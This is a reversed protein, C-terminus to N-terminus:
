SWWGNVDIIVQASDTSYICIAGNATLPLQAANAIAATAEYNVNSTTPLEGCPFATVYGASTADVVTLNASIAKANAPVGRVGAIQVVLIQGAALRSGNQGANVETRLGDRTDTFRFPASPTFKNTANSSAYGVVDVVLDIDTSAFFCVTGAPSVQALVLNPTVKGAAPNLSSTAPLTGCPFVTIYSDASPVVGTVNLAVASADTPINAIGLVPLEVVQGAALRAPTGLGQRSDMLRAPAVPMYRGGAATAYYGGVDILLDASVNSFACLRGSADLPITAANAVTENTSFNLTSVEPQTSCNWMTLFGPGAPGTVTVNALLAKASAPVGGQGTIQIRTIVGAALRAAGISSRTDVIRAPSLPAFGTSASTPSAVPAPTIVGTAAAPDVNFTWNVNRASTNAAVTYAGPALVTRPVIVVANDGGLIQSAVGSTTAASLVCVEIPGNPGILSGSANNAAEPMLAIIPLGAPGSWNCYTLPSPTEVVFRDLNTTTGDGPFLIPTAPRPASGLGRIVDLTAGSHWTPTSASDCKGFGTSQLNPRIIGIAHFPGSMWLEIHSRASTNIASSVAVNGSNGAVDGEPTYGPLGPTEDHSIGNNLMYCSHSYAGASMSPDEVVSGLGSMARFYNVTTLWDATAPIFAPSPAAASVGTSLFTAAVLGIGIGLTTIRNTRKKVHMM